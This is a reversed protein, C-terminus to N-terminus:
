QGFLDFVDQSYNKSVPISVPTPSDLKVVFGDKSKEFIRVHRRNVMYSRHCRIIGNSRMDDEISKFTGRIMSSSTKQGDRYHVTLYNDAGKIYLLDNVNIALKLEGKADFFNVMQKDQETPAPKGHVARYDSIAKLRRDKDRWSFYLWSFAYPLFLICATNRLSIKLLVSFERADHFFFIELISFAFSIAVLEAIIWLLYAWIAIPRRLKVCRHYFIVRSISVIVMGILVLLSSLLFYKTDSMGGRIWDRSGYPEFLNIFILSFAATFLVLWIQNGKEALYKPIAKSFDM